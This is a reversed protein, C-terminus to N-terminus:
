ESWEHWEAADRLSLVRDPKGLKPGSPAMDFQAFRYGKAKALKKKALEETKAVAFCMSSGYNVRYPDVWVFLKMEVGEQATPAEHKKPWYIGGSRQM